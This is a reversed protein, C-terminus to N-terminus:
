IFHYRLGLLITSLSPNRFNVHGTNYFQTPPEDLAVNFMSGSLNNGFVYLYSLTMSLNECYHYAGGVKLEPLAATQTNYTKMVGRFVGGPIRAATNVVRTGLLTQTMFGFDGFIDLHTTHYTGGALVDYGSIKLSSTLGSHLNKVTTIGYYGGGIEANLSFKERYSRDLGVSLRGGWGNTSVFPSSQNITYGQISNWTYSGDVNLYPTTMSGMNGAFTNLAILGLLTTAYHRM